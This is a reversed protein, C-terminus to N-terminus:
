SSIRARASSGFRCRTISVAVGWLPSSAAKKRRSPRSSRSNSRNQSVVPVVPVAQPGAEAVVEDLAPPGVDGLPLLGVEERPPLGFFQGVPEGAGPVTEEVGHEVVAGLDDGAALPIGLLLAQVEPAGEGQQATGCRARHGGHERQAGSGAFHEVGFVPALDQVAQEVAVGVGQEVVVHLGGRRGVVGREGREDGLGLAEGALGAVGLQLDQAVVHGIQKAAAEVGDHEAAIDGGRVIEAAM